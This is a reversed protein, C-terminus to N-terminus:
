SQNKILKVEHVGIGSTEVGRRIQGRDKCGVGV